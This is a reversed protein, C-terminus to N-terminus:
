LVTLTRLDADLEAQVGLPLSLQGACHGFGFDGLIPVDLKGLRDQLVPGVNGCGSWSGLV